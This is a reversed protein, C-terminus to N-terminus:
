KRLHHALLPFHINEVFKSPINEQFGKFHLTKFVTSYLRYQHDADETQHATNSGVTPSCVKTMLNSKKQYNFVTEM